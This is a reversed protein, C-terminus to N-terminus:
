PLYISCGYGGLHELQEWTVNHLLIPNSEGQTELLLPLPKIQAITQAIM